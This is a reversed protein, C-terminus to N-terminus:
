GLPERQHPGPQAAADGTELPPESPGQDLRFPPYEDRMLATYALVRYIWRNIGMVLDFLSRRYRGTFLLIVAAILVLLGLLSPGAAGAYNGDWNGGAGWWIAANSFASVILLHPIALLWWKVLVLGNALHEPYAVDFDAPYSAPALTFPPYRDTGLASYAYFAVRWNWRAVGVNFHFLSRPYRGTFLIAFGAAITTVVFAFWLFFLLFYHPIALLWKVLWLWRSLGPDLAGYLAAPYVPRGAAPSASHSPTHDGAGRRDAPNDGSLASPRSALARGIGAAGLILLPLGIILLVLGTILLGMTLPGLFGPRVGAQVDVSVPQSADANMVVVSWSGSQLDWSIRQEGPGSASVAWFDQDAPPQPESTGPLERYDADFPRFEVDALQSHPVGALYNDVADVSAIGIFVDQGPQAARAELRFGFADGLHVGPPLEEDIVVDLPQSTLAYSDAGLRVPQSTLYGDDDQAAQVLGTFAAMSVLALGALSLLIGLVLLVVHGPKM